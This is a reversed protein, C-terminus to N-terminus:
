TEDKPKPAPRPAPTFTAHSVPLSTPVRYERLRHTARTSPNDMRKRHAHAMQETAETPVERHRGQKPMGQAAKDHAAEWLKREREEEDETMGQEVLANITDLTGLQRGAKPIQPGPPLQPALPLPLPLPVVNSPGSSPPVEGSGLHHPDEGWKRGPPTGDEQDAM